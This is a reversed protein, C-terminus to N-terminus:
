FFFFKFTAINDFIRTYIFMHIVQWLFHSKLTMGWIFSKDTYALENINTEFLGIFVEAGYFILM